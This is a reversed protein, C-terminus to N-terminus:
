KDRQSAHIWVRTTNCQIEPFDFKDEFSQLMVPQTFCFKGNGMDVKCVVYEKLEEVDDFDFMSTM